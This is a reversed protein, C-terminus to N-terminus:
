KHYIIKFIRNTFEESNWHPIAAEGLELARERSYDMADIVADEIANHEEFTFGVPTAALTPSLYHSVRLGYEDEVAFNKTGDSDWITGVGHYDEWEIGKKALIERLEQTKTM